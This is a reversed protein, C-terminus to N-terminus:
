ILYTPLFCRATSGSQGAGGAAVGGDDMGVLLPSSLLFVYKLLGKVSLRGNICDIQMNIRFEAYFNLINQMLM